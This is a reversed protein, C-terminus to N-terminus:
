TRWAYIIPLAIGFVRLQLVSDSINRQRIARGILLLIGLLLLPGMAGGGGGGTGSNVGVQVTRQATSMNGARDDVSYSIAYSGVVATNVTGTIVISDNLDGDIDDIATAGAEEYTGGAAITMSADGFLTLMPPIRDGLGLRGIGNNAHIEVADEGALILDHSGDDNFDVLVGRRMGASVIQEADLVFDGGSSGRYVQHVGADNVAVIDPWGDNDVDASLLESVISAGFTGGAAFDGNSQQYLIMNEPATLDSGDIGLLLDPAGDDNLDSASVNAVTGYRFEARSFNRGNGSSILVAVARDISEVVVIDPYSDLDIDVIALDIGARAPPYSLNFGSTGSRSAVYTGRPGTLVLEYNGDLDLDAAAIDLVEGVGSDQIRVASSFGGSGDNLFIEASRSSMGSVAIDLAGDGNWDLVATTNGGSGAGLSTGPTGLTRDGANFFVLTEGSTAVIDIKGDGNLDGSDIDAGPASLIQTPGESFEAVVQSAALASNNRLNPDDSIAIAILTNDGDSTQTGQVNFVLSTNAQMGNYTCRVAPKSSSNDQISCEPPAALTLSPGSTTWGAVLEGDEVDAPGNNDLIIQWQSTEGVTVPNVALSARLSVDARNDAFITLGFGLIASAGGSDTAIINVNYQTDRADFRIPTGSLVGSVSNIKLTGSVPLGQASFRLTDGDDIDAFFGALALSFSIGEIAEQDAPTGTVFPADNRPRVTVSLGFTNSFSNGDHVRVPVSLQGNFDPVPTIVTGNRSYNDGDDVEISFDKPFKSDPDSVQLDNVRIERSTDEDVEVNLQGVIIPPIPEGPTIDIRVRAERSLGTGDSARYRFEDSLNFSGDHHYSFTGDENFVLDGYSVNRTLVATLEDGEFDIDNALVSLAGGNLSSVTGGRAVTAADNRPFPPWGDAWVIGSSGAFLILAILISTTRRGVFLSQTPPLQVVSERDPEQQLPANSFTYGVSPFLLLFLCISVMITFPHTLNLM